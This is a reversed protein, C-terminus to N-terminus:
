RNQKLPPTPPVSERNHKEPSRLRRVAETSASVAAVYDGVRMVHGNFVIKDEPDAIHADTAVGSLVISQDARASQVATDSGSPTVRGSQAAAFSPVLVLSIVGAALYAMRM